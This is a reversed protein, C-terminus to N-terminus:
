RTRGQLAGRLKDALSGVSTQASTQNREHYERLEDQEAAQIIAKRSVRIRRGASDADLVMVELESGIPFAKAVDGDRELGTESLPMLGTRGPGLFLFVGYHEHRDVKGTVRAGATLGQAAPRPTATRSTGEDLMAIGIRRKETDVSLIEFQATQGVSVQKSWGGPRGTPAFTSVHALGEVGPELEVFAGFEAIRTVRGTRVQGVEYNAGVLTWPDDSLQKLGLGIKGTAEDVRLVKVSLEEGVSVTQTTDAVRSWGMDSVHLLGQVGGGLDIFAGFDRVSVVRGRLVADVVVSRRVDDAKEAQEAELLARRSLVLDKGDNKYEIIRFAYTRGVHVAPDATRVIDIQSMPCFGRQKGVRVEYGGKVDKEIKGEVPLGASYADTVAKDTVHGRSLRRSLKLGGSTSVVVAQIRDGVAIELQGEADKVEALDIVAEGKGGVDVFAVDHGFGVVTGEIAQGRSYLQAKQSAEFLAAFDDEPATM